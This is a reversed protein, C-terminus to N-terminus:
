NTNGNHRQMSMNTQKNQNESHQENVELLSHSNFLIKELILVFSYSIIMILFCIPYKRNNQNSQSYYIENAEPMLDLFSIALFIGSSFSNVCSIVVDSHKLRNFYTPLIGFLFTIVFIFVTGLIQVIIMISNTDM